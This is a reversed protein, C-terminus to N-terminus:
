KDSENNETKEVVTSAEESPKPVSNFFPLSVSNKTKINLSKINEWGGPIHTVIQNVGEIINHCLEKETMNSKGIRVNICSGKGWVMFTCDRVRAVNEALKSNLRVPIPYRKTNFFNKEWFDELYWLFVRM